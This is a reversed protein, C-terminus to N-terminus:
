LKFDVNRLHEDLTIKSEARKLAIEISVSALALSKMEDDVLSVKTQQFKDRVFEDDFIACSLQNLFQSAYILSCNGDLM